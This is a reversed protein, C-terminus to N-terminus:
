MSKQKKEAAARDLVRRYIKITQSCMTETSSNEKMLRRAASALIKSQRPRFSLAARLAEAFVNMRKPKARWATKGPFSVM